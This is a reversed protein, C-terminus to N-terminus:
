GENAANIADLRTAGKYITGNRKFSWQDEGALKAVTGIFKKTGGIKFTRSWATYANAHSRNFIIDTMQRAEM